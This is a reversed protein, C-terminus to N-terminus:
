SKSEATDWDEGFMLQGLREIKEANTGSGGSIEKVRADEAHKLVLSATERQFRQRELGLKEQLRQEAKERLELKAREIEGRARASRVKVFGGLDQRRIALLSFTRQGLQDLQEESLEPVEKKLQDLLTEATTEDEQLQARLQYWSYFESLAAASTQLGDERLWKITDAQTHAALYEMIAAQREAPLTKLKSDGRPKKASM